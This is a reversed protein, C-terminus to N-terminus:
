GRPRRGIRAILAISVLTSLMMAVASVGLGIQFARPEYQMEVVHEGSEIVVGRFAHYAPFVEAPEGDIAATWGPDYTESLFLVCRKEANVRLTITSLTYGTVEVNGLTGNRESEFPTVNKSDTVVASIPDFDDASMAKLVAAENEMVRLAPVLRAHPWARENRWVGLGNIEATKTFYDGPSWSQDAKPFLYYQMAALPEVRSWVGADAALGLFGLIRNPTIGDYGWIQYVGYAPLIGAGLEGPFGGSKVSFRIPKEMAALHTTLETEPYLLSRKVTPHLPHTAYVVEAAAAITVVLVAISWNARNPLLSVAALVLGVCVIAIVVAVGGTDVHESSGRYLFYVILPIVLTAGVFAAPRKLDAFARERSGWHELGYAGLLPLAFMAFGSFYFHWSSSILPLRKVANLGPFDFALLLFFGAVIALPIVGKRRRGPALLLAACAWVGTGAFIMGSFNSNWGEWGWFTNSASLGFFRPAFLAAIHDTPLSFAGADMEPRHGFTHSRPLYEIFPLIQASCVLLALAWAGSCALVQKVKTNAPQQDTALRVLFYGGIGLSITFATEPHGGLLLMTGSFAMGFLGRRLRTQLVQEVSWFLVPVWAAVDPLPWYAWVLNYGGLMWLASFFRGTARGLGLSRGCLYATMGCLWLKLLIYFTTAVHVDLFAHLLRPPYFVTSQYNALLPLGGYETPNWLPWEGAEISTKVLVFWLHFQSLADGTLRNAVVPVEPTRQDSWPPSEYLMAGPSIMEARLFTSPFVIALLVLLLAAHLLVEVPRIPQPTSM